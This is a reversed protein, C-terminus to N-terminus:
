DIFWSEIGRRCAKGYVELCIPAMHDNNEGQTDSPTQADSALGKILLRCHLWQHSAWRSLPHGWGLAGLVSCCSGRADWEYLSTWQPGFCSLPPCLASLSHSLPPPSIRGSM